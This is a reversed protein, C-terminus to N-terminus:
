LSLLWNIVEQNIDLTDKTEELTAEKGVHIVENRTKDYRTVWKDWTKPHEKLASGTLDKLLDNLREKTRWKKSLATKYESESIGKAEYKSVLFSELFIELAQYSEVIALTYDKTDLSDQANLLLLRYVDPKFNKSLAHALAKVETLSRNVMASSIPLSLLYYGLNQPIFYILTIVVQGLRRVYVENSIDRYNDILRNVISITMETIEAFLLEREKDKLADPNEPTDMKLQIDLKSYRFIATRDNEKELNIGTVRPDWGEEEHLPMKPSLISSKTYYLPYDKATLDVKNSTSEPTRARDTWIKELSILAQINKEPIAIEMEYHDPIHLCYPLNVQVLVNGFDFDDLSGSSYSFSTSMGRMQTGPKRNILKLEGKVLEELEDSPTGNAVEEDVYKYISTLSGDDPYKVEIVMKARNKHRVPDSM